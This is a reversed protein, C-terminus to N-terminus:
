QRAGGSQEDAHHGDGDPLKDLWDEHKITMDGSHEVAALRPHVYPAATSAAWKRDEPSSNKDRLLNLMFDLPTLGSAAIEAERAATAKNRTGKQRGGRREGPKSGGVPM